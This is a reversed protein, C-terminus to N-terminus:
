STLETRPIILNDFLFQVKISSFIQGQWAFADFTPMKPPNLRQVRFLQPLALALAFDGTVIM